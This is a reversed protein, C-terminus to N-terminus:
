TGYNLVYIYTGGYLILPSGTSGLLPTNIGNSSTNIGTNNMVMTGNNGITLAIDNLGRSATGNTTGNLWLLSHDIISLSCTSISPHCTIVSVSPWVLTARAFTVGTNSLLQLAIASGNTNTPLLIIAM